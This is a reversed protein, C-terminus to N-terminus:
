KSGQAELSKMRRCNFLLFNLLQWEKKKRQTKFCKITTELKSVLDEFSEAERVQKILAREKCIKRKHRPQSNGKM